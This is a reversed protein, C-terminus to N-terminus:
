VGNIIGSMDIKWSVVNGTMQIDVPDNDVGQMWIDGTWYGIKEEGTDLIAVVNLGIDPYEM